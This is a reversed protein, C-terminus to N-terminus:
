AREEHPTLNLQAFHERGFSEAGRDMQAAIHTKLVAMDRFYRQLM